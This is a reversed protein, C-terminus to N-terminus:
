LGRWGPPTAAKTLDVEPKGPAGEAPQPKTEAPSRTVASVQGFTIM